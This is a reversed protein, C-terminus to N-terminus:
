VKSNPNKSTRRKADDKLALFVLIAGGIGITLRVAASLIQALKKM